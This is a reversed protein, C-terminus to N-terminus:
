ESLLFWPVRDAYILSAITAILLQQNTSKQVASEVSQLLHNEIFLKLDQSTFVDFGITIGLNRGASIQEESFSSYSEPVYGNISVDDLDKFDYRIVELSNHKWYHCLLSLLVETPRACFKEFNANEELLRHRIFAFAKIM